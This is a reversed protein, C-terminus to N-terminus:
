KSSKQLVFISTLAQLYQPETMVSNHLRLMELVDSTERAKKISTLLIDNTDVLNTFGIQSTSSAHRLTKIGLYLLLFLTKFTVLFM